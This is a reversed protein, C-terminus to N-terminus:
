NQVELWTNQMEEWSDLVEQTWVETATGQIEEPLDEIAILPEYTTVNHSNNELKYVAQLSKNENINITILEKEM